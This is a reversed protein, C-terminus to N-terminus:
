SLIFILYSVYASESSKAPVEMQTYILCRKIKDVALNTDIGTVTILNQAAYQVM